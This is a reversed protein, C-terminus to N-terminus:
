GSPTHQINRITGAQVTSMDSITRYYMNEFPLHRVTPYEFQQRGGSILARVPIAPSYASKPVPGLMPTPLFIGQKPVARYQPFTPPSPRYLPAYAPRSAAAYTGAYVSYNQPSLTSSSPVYSSASAPPLPAALPASLPLSVPAAALGYGPLSARSIPTKIVRDDLLQKKAAPATAFDLSRKRSVEPMCVPPPLLIASSDLVPSSMPNVAYSPQRSPVTGIVPLHGPYFAPRTPSEVAMSQGVPSTPTSLSLFSSQERVRLFMRLQNIWDTWQSPSVFLSYKIHTLFELEMVCIEGVPLKTVESWTKNTYTNDDLFKNGLMLGVTFVRFESGPNGIVQSNMMKLRYMYLLALCVVAHSLQTQMLIDEVFERFEASPISTPCLPVSLSNHTSCRKLLASSNFWFFCSLNAAMLAFDSELEKSMRPSKVTKTGVSPGAMATSELLEFLVTDTNRLFSSVPSKVPSAMPAFDRTALPPAAHSPKALPAPSVYPHWFAPGLPGAGTSLPTIPAASSAASAVPGAVASAAAYADTPPLLTSLPYKGAPMGPRHVPHPLPHQQHKLNNRYYKQLPAAVPSGAPLGPPLVGPAPPALGPLPPVPMTSVVRPAYYAADPSTSLEPPPTPFAPPYPMMAPDAPGHALRPPSLSSLPSISPSLAFSNCVGPRAARGACAACPCDAPDLDPPLFLSATDPYRAM